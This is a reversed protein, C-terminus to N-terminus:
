GNGTGSRRRGLFSEVEDAAKALDRRITSELVRVVKWGLGDLQENVEVDRRINRGIKARWKAPDRHGDFQAEWREFGRERWGHGHWFDGDVFVAVRASAFVLDPKGPLDGHLRYRLGRAHLAQRLMLEPKTDKARVSSMIRSTVAPDRVM